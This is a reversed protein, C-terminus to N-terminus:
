EAYEKPESDSEDCKELLSLCVTPVLLILVPLFLRLERVLGVCMHLLFFPVVGIVSMRWLGNQKLPPLDRFKTLAIVTLPMVFTLALLLSGPQALNDPLKWLSTYRDYHGILLRIAALTGAAIVLDFLVTLRKSKFVLATSTEHKQGWLLLPVLLVTERCTAMLVLWIVRTKGKELRCAWLYGLM